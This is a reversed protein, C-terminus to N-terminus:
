DFDGDYLEDSNQDFGMHKATSVNKDACYSDELTVVAQFLPSTYEKKM